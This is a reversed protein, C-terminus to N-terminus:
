DLGCWDTHCRRTYLTYVCNYICFSGKVVLTHSACGPVDALMNQSQQPRQKKTLFGGWKGSLNDFTSIQADDPENSM